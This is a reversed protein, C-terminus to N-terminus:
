DNLVEKYLKDVIEKTASRVYKVIDMRKKKEKESSAEAVKQILKDTLLEYNEFCFALNKNKDSLKEFSAVLKSIQDPTMAPKKGVKMDNFTNLLEEKLGDISIVQLNKAKEWEGTKYWRKITDIGLELLEAIDNLTLGSKVYMRKGEAQKKDGVAKPLRGKRQTIKAKSQTM